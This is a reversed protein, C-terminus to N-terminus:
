VAKTVEMLEANSLSHSAQQWRAKAKLMYDNLTWCFELRANSNCANTWENEWNQYNEWAKKAIELKNM